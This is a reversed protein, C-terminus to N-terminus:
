REICTMMVSHSDECQLGADVLRTASRREEDHMRVDVGIGGRGREWLVNASINIRTRPQERASEPTIPCMMWIQKAGDVKAECACPRADICSADPKLSRAELTSLSVGSEYVCSHKDELRSSRAPVFISKAFRM